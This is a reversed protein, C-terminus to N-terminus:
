DNVVNIPKQNLFAEINRHTTRMLNQRARLSTWAMHGTVICRPAHLLPHDAPPPEVALVDLAAGGLRGASLADLLDRENILAGRATNILLAASKVKSLFAQNVFSNNEPTLACHLSIVDSERALEDLSVGRIGPHGMSSGDKKFRIVNMGLAQAISAVRQGIRGFGVVGLTLDTLELLPTNWHCFDPQRSWAGSRTSLSHEGVHHCLELLLAITHQAVSNTGYTPVNSVPIGREKAAQIDVVNYGTALVSIFQLRPLLRIIERSLPTKNTLVIEAGAARQVVEDRATRDFVTLEGLSAIDDWPNDGPNLTHGDLTVIRMKDSSRSEAGAPGTGTVM